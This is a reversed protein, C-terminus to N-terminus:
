FYQVDLNKRFEPAELREAQRDILTQRTAQVVLQSPLHSVDEWAFHFLSIVFAVKQNAPVVDLKSGEAVLIRRVKAELDELRRRKRLNLQGKEEDTFRPRFPSAHPVPVLMVEFTFVAGYDKLYAGRTLGVLSMPDAEAINRFQNDISDETARVRALLATQAESPDAALLPSALWIFILAQTLMRM